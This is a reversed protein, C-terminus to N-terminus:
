NHIHPVCEGAIAGIALAHMGFINNIIEFFLRAPQEVRMDDFFEQWKYFRCLVFLSPARFPAGDKM